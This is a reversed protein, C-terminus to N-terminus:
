IIKKIKNDREKMKQEQIDENTPKDYKFINLFAPSDNAATSEWQRNITLPNYRKLPNNTKILQFWGVVFFILSIFGLIIAAVWFSTKIPTYLLSYPTLLIAGVMTSIAIIKAAIIEILNWNRM